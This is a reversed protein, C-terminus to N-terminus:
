KLTDIINNADKGDFNIFQSDGSILILAIVAFVGFAVFLTIVIKSPNM